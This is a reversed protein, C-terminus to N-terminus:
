PFPALVWTLKLPFNGEVPFIRGVPADFGHHQMLCSLLSLVNGVSGPQSHVTQYMLM